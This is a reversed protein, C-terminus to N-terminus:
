GAIAAAVLDIFDATDPVDVAVLTDVSRGYKEMLRGYLPRCHDILHPFVWPEMGTQPMRFVGLSVGSVPTLDSRFM